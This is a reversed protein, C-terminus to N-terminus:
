KVVEKISSVDIIRYHMYENAETMYKRLFIRDVYVSNGALPCKGEPVYKKMFDILSKNVSKETEKSRRSEEILNTQM